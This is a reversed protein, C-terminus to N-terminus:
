KTGYIKSREIYDTDTIVEIGNQILLAATIGNGDILHSTFTGDYVKSCGCSPSKAKLVAKKINLLQCLKLTENAGKQFFNTVDIGEKNVVRGNKIESALRPTSLGGAIEPCFPIVEKDKLSLLLEEQYNNEGNYKCNIGLLCSSVLVKEKM